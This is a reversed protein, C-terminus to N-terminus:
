DYWLVVMGGGWLRPGKITEGKPIDKKNVILLSLNYLKFLM